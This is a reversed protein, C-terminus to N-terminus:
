KGQEPTQAGARYAALSKWRRMMATSRRNRRARFQIKGRYIRFDMDHVLCCDCCAMKYGKRIPQQWENPGVQKFKAM